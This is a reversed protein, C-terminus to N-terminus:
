SDDLLCYRQPLSLPTPKSVSMKSTRLIFFLFAFIGAQHMAEFRALVDFLEGDDSLDVDDGDVLCLSIM